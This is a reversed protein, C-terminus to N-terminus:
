VARTESRGLYSCSLIFWQRGVTVVCGCSKSHWASENGEHDQTWEAGHSLRIDSKQEDARRKASLSGECLGERRQAQRRSTTIITLMTLPSDELLPSEGWLNMGMSPTCLLIWGVGCCPAASEQRQANQSVGYQIARSKSCAMKVTLSLPFKRQM